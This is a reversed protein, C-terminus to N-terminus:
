SRVARILCRPNDYPTLVFLLRVQMIGRTKAHKWIVTHKLLGMPNLVHLIPPILANSIQQSIARSAAGGARYFENAGFQEM